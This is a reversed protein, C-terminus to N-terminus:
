GAWGQESPRDAESIKSKKRKNREEGEDGEEGEEEEFFTRTEELQNRWM